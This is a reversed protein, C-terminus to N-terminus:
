RRGEGIGYKELVRYLEDREPPVLRERGGGRLVWRGERRDLMRGVVKAEVGMRGFEELLEEVAGPEVSVLLAGSSMLSLPDVGVAECVERVEEEVPVEDAWLEVGLGSAEAVEWVGCLIGGETPDHMSHVGVRLAALAEEVVSIREMMAEARDLVDEDVVGRLHQRLDSAIISAGELGASKTMVLLDGASAGGTRVIREAEGIMVGVIIPHNVGPSVETHGGVVSVRISKAARDVQGMIEDLDEEGFGEPLMISPMYWMPRAGCVAVDNATIHVSLWGIREVAATIPDVNVVLFKGDMRVAAADEGVAPGVIVRDSREGVRTLVLRKLVDHPIKGTKFM